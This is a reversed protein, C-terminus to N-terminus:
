AAEERRDRIKVYAIAAHEACYPKGVVAEGDCFCFSATGPEGIPWCCAVSRAPRPAVIKMPAPREVAVSAQAVAPLLPELRPRDERAVPPLPPLSAAAALPPLTPGTVRKPVVPRPAVGPMGERRIPSPRPPLNLRHAKGVVANKSMGIRRGIEATSHGESWLVRLKAIVDDNWDM